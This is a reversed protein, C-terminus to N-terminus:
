GPETPPVGVIRKAGLDVAPVAAETFPLMFSAGGNAPKIEIIDGGGFNHVATVRGIADGGTTVAELGILDAHYFTDPEEIAPLRERPVFLDLNALAAAATRDEVGRVRAILCDKGQRLAVIDLRRTGDETELPGYRAIATPDQTFSWIRVEGRLGHAAGIRAVRIRDAM